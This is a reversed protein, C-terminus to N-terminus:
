MRNLAAGSSASFRIRARVCASCNSASNCCCGSRKVSKANRTGRNKIHQAEDLIVYGLTTASYAEIDKQLLSYSTIIVDYDHIQEILKKRQTPTGDIILTKIEPNFKHFEEKWNYVLSTPSIILSVSKPNDTLYQTIVIIAQLTKGLGMDDALIGNLHMQRLRELWNAGEKQYTRLEAKIKKPVDRVKVDRSGLMQQQMELLKKSM